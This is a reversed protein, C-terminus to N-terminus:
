ERVKRAYFKGNFTDGAVGNVVTARMSWGSQVTAKRPLPVQLAGDIFATERFIGQMYELHAATTSATVPAGAHVDMFFTGDPDYLALRVNRNAVTADTTLYIAGFLIELTEGTTNSLTVVANGATDGFSLVLDEPRM